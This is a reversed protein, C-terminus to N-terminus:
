VRRPCTMWGEALAKELIKEALWFDFEDDIDVNEERSTVLTGAKRGFLSQSKITEARTAIVSGDNVFATKIDQRRHEIGHPPYQVSEFGTALSDYGESRFLGIVRDILGPRRVPSTPQLLVVASGGLSDLAHEIVLRSITEDQALEKPRPLVEAGYAKAVGAIEEDETSVVTQNLLSSDKAAQITWALLPHGAITKVNKRPV